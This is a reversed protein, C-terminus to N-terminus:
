QGNPMGIFATLSGLQKDLREILCGTDRHSTAAAATDRLTALSGMWSGAWEGPIEVNIGNESVGNLVSSGSNLLRVETSPILGKAEHCIWSHAGACINRIIGPALDTMAHTTTSASEASRVTDREIWRAVDVIKYAAQLTEYRVRMVAIQGMLSSQEEIGYDSICAEIQMYCNLELLTVIAKHIPLAESAEQGLSPSAEESSSADGSFHISFAALCKDKRWEELQKYMNEVDQHRAGRRRAVSGCLVRAMTRAIAALGLIADFYSQNEHGLFSRPLEIDEDQIRSPTKRDLSRFADWGYVFWFLHQQRQTAMALSASSDGETRVRTEIRYQLTMAILSDHTLLLNELQSQLPSTEREEYEFDIMLALAELDDLRVTDRSPESSRTELFAQRFRSALRQQLSWRDTQQTFPCGRCAVAFVLASSSRHARYDALFGDRTLLNLALNAFNLYADIATELMGSQIDLSCYPNPTSPLSTQLDSDLQLALDPMINEWETTTSPTGLGRSFISGLFSLETPNPEFDYEFEFGSRAPPQLAIESSPNSISNSDDLLLRSSLDTTYRHPGLPLEHNGPALALSNTARPDKDDVLVFRTHQGSGIDNSTSVSLTSEGPPNKRRRQSRIDDSEFTCSTQRLECQSCIPLGTAARASRDCKIKRRFCFDCSEREIGRKLPMKM